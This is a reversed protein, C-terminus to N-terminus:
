GERLKPYSKTRGGQKYPTLPKAAPTSGSNLFSCGYSQYSGSGSTSCTAPWFGRSAFLKCNGL